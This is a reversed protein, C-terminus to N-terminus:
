LDAFSNKEGVFPQRYEGLRLDRSQKDEYKRM